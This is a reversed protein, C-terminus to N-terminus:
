LGDFDNIELVYIIFCTTFCVLRLLSTSLRLKQSKYKLHHREVRLSQFLMGKQSEM